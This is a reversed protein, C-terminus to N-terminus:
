ASNAIPPDTQDPKQIGKLPTRPKKPEPFLCRYSDMASKKVAEEYARYDSSWPMMSDLFKKNDATGKDMAAPIKELLYQLYLRVDAGNAKSTEVLSYMIANVNAGALTDAFLWNARGISYARILRESKGNDLPVNGDNLFGRLKEEQNLAYQVAKYMRESFVTGSEILSRLYGFLEDVKPKVNEQRANYREEPTKDKLANDAIYIERILLLVKTEPLEAIAEDSLSSIDNVFLAEAFYRRCHMFCGTVTINGKEDEYVKYSVYADCTIYGIFEGLLRRLHDTNRTSEYYFVAVPHCGLLESTCHVWIYGKHAGREGDRNVQMFSEDSQIYGHQIMYELYHSRIREFFEPVIANGWHIIVQKSLDLGSMSYDLSQRHFPLGLLFKRYLIDAIISPSAYSHPLLLNTFPVTDLMHELGHSIVPTYVYKAYYTVPIREVSIHQRWFAIRWNGEGYEANLAAVDLLYLIERPLNEVSKKLSNKGASKKKGGKGTGTGKDKNEDTDRGGPFSVVRRGKESDETDEEQSEDEFDGTRDDASSILSLLKETRKGYTSRTKLLNKDAEKQYLAKLEENEKKLASNEKKLDSFQIHVETNIRQNATERDKLERYLDQLMTAVELLENYPLGDLETKCIDLGENM